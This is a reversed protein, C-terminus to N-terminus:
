SCIWNLLCVFLSVVVGAWCLCVGFLFFVGSSCGLYLKFRALFVFFLVLRMHAFYSITLTRAHMRAHMRVM